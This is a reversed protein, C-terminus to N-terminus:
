SQRSPLYQLVNLYDAKLLDLMHMIYQLIVYIDTTRIVHSHATTFSYDTYSLSCDLMSQKIIVRGNLYLALIHCVSLCVSPHVYAM